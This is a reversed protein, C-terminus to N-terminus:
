AFEMKLSFSDEGATEGRVYLVDEEQSYRLSVGQGALVERSYEVWFSRLAHNQLYSEDLLEVAWDLYYSNNLHGNLDIERPQPTREQQGPLAEPFPMQLAPAKPEGPLSLAPIGQMLESPPALGRTAEDMLLWQSCASVLEEGRASYIRYRFPYMWHKERGAWARLLVVEGNQPLRQVRLATRALVWLLGHSQLAALGVGFLTLHEAAADGIMRALSGPCIRGFADAHEGTVLVTKQLVGAPCDQAFELFTM